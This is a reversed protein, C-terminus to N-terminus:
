GEKPWFELSQIETHAILVSSGKPTWVDNDGLNYVREIYIDREDADTSTFSNTGLYGAWRTGDKLVAMIWCEEIGSFRWDWAANVPHSVHIRFYRALRRSWGERGDLGIFVGLGAPLVMATLITVLSHGLDGLNSSNILGNFPALLAQYIFSLAIYGIIADKLALRRNPLLRGRLYAIVFGPLVLQTLLKLNEPKLWDEM